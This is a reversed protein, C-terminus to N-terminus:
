DRPSPSTYLLCTRMHRENLENAIAALSTAGDERIGKVTERLGEAFRDANSKITDVSAGNGKGARRLPEAGNPNGLKVGRAKAAALASKTRESIREREDENIVALLGITLRNVDPNDACTFDVCSNRLQLTFAADRSLRVTEHDRVASLADEYQKIERDLQKAHGAAQAMAKHYPLSDAAVGTEARNNFVREKLVRLVAADEREKRLEDPVDRLEARVRDQLEPPM